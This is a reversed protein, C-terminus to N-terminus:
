KLCWKEWVFIMLYVPLGNSVISSIFRQRILFQFSQMSAVILNEKKAIKSKTVDIMQMGNARFKFAMLDTDTSIMIAIRAM